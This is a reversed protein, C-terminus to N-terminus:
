SQGMRINERIYVFYPDNPDAEERQPVVDNAKGAFWQDVIAAQQEPNFASWVRGPPGYEYVSQGALDDAQTVVDQCVLGPLFRAHEIQWVHTLEHILLQGPHTYHDNFYKTPGDPYNFADSGLNVYCKKDAGPVVFARGGIGSLNTLIIQDAPPLSNEFVKEAFQAEELSLERQKILANTVLGVAVGVVVALIVSGGFAFLVVGAILAFTGGIGLNGFFQGVESGLSVILGLAGGIAGAGLDVIAKAVDEIFGIAGSASYDKTVHFSGDRVDPWHLRIFPNNGEQIPPDDNISGSTTSGAVHGSHEAVLVLGTKTTFIAQLCFDYSPLGSDHMHFQVSYTGNSRLTMVVWGGLSSGAPTTIVDRFTREEPTEITEILARLSLPPEFWFEQALRRATLPPDIVAAKVAAHRFSKMVTTVM